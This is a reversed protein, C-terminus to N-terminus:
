KYKRIIKMVRQEAIRHANIMTRAPLTNLAVSYDELVGRILPIAAGDLRLTQGEMARFGAKGLAEAAQELIKHPDEVKGMSELAELMLLANNVTDWHYNTPAPDQELSHLAEYMKLLQFVRKREPLPETPSAMLADMVSYTSM